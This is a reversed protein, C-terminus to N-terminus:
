GKPKMMVLIATVSGKIESIGTALTNFTNQCGALMIHSQTNIKDGLEKRDGTAVSEGKDTRKELERVRAFLGGYGFAFLIANVSFGLLVSIITWEM